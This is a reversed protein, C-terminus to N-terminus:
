EPRVPLSSNLKVEPLRLALSKSGARRAGPIHVAIAARIQDDAGPLIPDSSDRGPPGIQVRSLVAREEFREGTTDRSIREPEISNAETVDIAIAPILHFVDATTVPHHCRIISFAIDQLSPHFAM